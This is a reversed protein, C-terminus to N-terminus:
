KMLRSLRDDEKADEDKEEGSPATSVLRSSADSMIKNLIADNVKGRGASMLDDMDQMARLNEAEAAAYNNIADVTNKHMTDIFQGISRITDARWIPSQSKQLIKAIAGSSEEATRAVVENATDDLTEAFDAIELEELINGIEIIGERVQPLSSEIHNQLRQRLSLHSQYRRKMRELKAHALWMRTRHELIQAQLLTTFTTLKDQENNVDLQSRDTPPNMKLAELRGRCTDLMFELDSAVAVLNTFLEVYQAQFLEDTKLQESIFADKQRILELTLEIQTFSDESELKYEDYINKVLGFASLFGSSGNKLRRVVQKQVNSDKLNFSNDMKGAKRRMEKLADDVDDLVVRRSRSHFDQNLDNMQRSATAGYEVIDSPSSYLGDFSEEARKRSEERQEDNLLSRAETSNRLEADGEVGAPIRASIADNLEDAKVNDNM